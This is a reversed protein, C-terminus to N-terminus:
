WQDDYDRVEDGCHRCESWHLRPSTHAYVSREAGCKSCNEVNYSEHKEYRDVATWDYHKDGLKTVMWKTGCCEHDVDICYDSFGFVMIRKAPKCKPCGYAFSITTPTRIGCQAEFLAIPATTTEFSNRVLRKGYNDPAEVFEGSDNFFGAATFLDMRDPFSYGPVVEAETLDCIMQYSESRNLKGALCDLRKYNSSQVAITFLRRGNLSYSHYLLRDRPAFENKGLISCFVGVPLYEWQQTDCFKRVRTENFRALLTCPVSAGHEILADLIQRNHLAFSAATRGESDESVADAGKQLM